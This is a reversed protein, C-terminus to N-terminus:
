GMLLSHPLLPLSAGRVSLASASPLGAPMVLHIWWGREWSGTPVCCFTSGEAFWFGVGHDNMLKCLHDGGGPCICWYGFWLLQYAARAELTGLLWGSTACLHCGTWTDCCEARRLQAAVATAWVGPEPWLGSIPSQIPSPFCMWWFRPPLHLAVLDELNLTPSALFRLLLFPALSGVGAKNSTVM